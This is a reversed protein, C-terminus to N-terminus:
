LSATIGLLASFAVLMGAVQTSTGSNVNQITATATTSASSKTVKATSLSQASSTINQAISSTASASLTASSVSTATATASAITNTSNSNQYMPSDICSNALVFHFGHDALLKEIEPVKKVTEVYLDHQLSVFGPDNHANLVTGKSLANQFSELIKSPDQKKAVIDWDLTDMNWLLNHYGMASLVAKVRDDAEGYPPRIFATKSGTVNFIADEAARVEAVIQENSLTMLHPHSWTHQAILHGADHARKVVEPFKIVQSGVMLFTAKVKAADLIDLLEATHESPGDDFSLAWEGKKCGYVDEPRACNGCSEWCKECENPGCNTNACIGAGVQKTPINPVKSLDYQKTWSPNIPALPNQAIAQSICAAILLSGAQFKM